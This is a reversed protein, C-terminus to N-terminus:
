ATTPPSVVLVEPWAAVARRVRHVHQRPVVVLVQEARASRRLADLATALMAPWPQGAHELVLVPQGPARRTWAAGFDADADAATSRVHVAVVHETLAAAFALAREAAEDVAGVPVVAIRSSAVQVDGQAMVASWATM